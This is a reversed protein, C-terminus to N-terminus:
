ALAFATPYSIFSLVFTRDKRRSEDLSREAKPADAIIREAVDLLKASTLKPIPFAADPDDTQTKLPRGFLENRHRHQVGVDFTMM